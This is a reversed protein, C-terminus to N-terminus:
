NVSFRGTVGEAVAPRSSAVPRRTQRYGNEPSDVAWSSSAPQSGWGSSVGGRAWQKGLPHSRSLTPRGAALLRRHHNSTPHHALVIRSDGPNEALKGVQATPDSLSGVFQGRERAFPPIRSAGLRRNPHGIHGSRGCFQGRRRTIQGTGRLPRADAIIRRNPQRLSIGWRDTRWSCLAFGGTRTPVWCRLPRRAPCGRPCQLLRAAVSCPPAVTLPRILWWWVTPTPGSRCPRHKHARDNM